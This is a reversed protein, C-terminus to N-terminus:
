FLWNELFAGAGRDSNISCVILSGYMKSQMAIPLTHLLLLKFIREYLLDPLEQEFRSHSIGKHLTPVIRFHISSIKIEVQEKVAMAQPTENGNVQLHGIENRFVGSLHIKMERRQVLHHSVRISPRRDSNNQALTLTPKNGFIGQHIHTFRNIYGFIPEGGSQM